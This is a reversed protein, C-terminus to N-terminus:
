KELWEIFEKAKSSSIIVDEETEPSLKLKIRSKSYSILEDVSNFSVIYKRNVRYFDDGNLELELRSLTSDCFYKKGDKLFAFLFKDDAMFYSIDCVSVPRQLKGMRLVFREKYRVSSKSILDKILSYDFNNDTKLTAFKNLATRVEDEKIPKLLYAISNVDFAKIAYYDYATTFIVPVDLKITDFISFSHGDSLHVDMFILDCSNHKFWEISEEVSDLKAIVHISPDLSLIMDELEEALLYEDEVIVVDM